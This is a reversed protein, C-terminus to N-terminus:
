QLLGRDKLDQAADLDSRLKKGSGGTVIVVDDLGCEILDKATLSWISIAQSEQLLARAGEATMVFHRRPDRRVLRSPIGLLDQHISFQAEAVDLAWDTQAYSDLNARLFTRSLKSDDPDVQWRFLVGGFWGRIQVRSYRCGWLFSRARGGGRIDTVSVDEFSVGYARCAFHECRLIAVDRITLRRDPSRPVRTWNNHFSTGTIKCGGVIRPGEAGGLGTMEGDVPFHRPM